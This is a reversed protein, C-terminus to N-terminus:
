ALTEKLLCVSARSLNTHLLNKKLEPLQAHFIPSLRISFRENRCKGTRHNALQYQYNQMSYQGLTTLFYRSSNPCFFMAFVAVYIEGRYLYRVKMLGKFDGHRTVESIGSVLTHYVTNGIRLQRDFFRNRSTPLKGSYISIHQNSEGDNAAQYHNELASFAAKPERRNLTQTRAWSAQKESGRRMPTPRAVRQQFEAANTKM